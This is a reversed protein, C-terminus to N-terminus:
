FGNERIFKESGFARTHESTIDLVVLQLPCLLSVLEDLSYVRELMGDLKRKIYGKKLLDSDNYADYFIGGKRVALFLFSGEPRLVRNIESFYSGRGKESVIFTIPSMIDFICGFYNDPFPLGKSVDCEKLELLGQGIPESLFDSDKEIATQTLDVGYYYDSFNNDILYRLNRGFGCGIELTRNIPEKQFIKDKLSYIRKIAYNPENRIRRNQSEKHLSQWKNDNSAYMVM